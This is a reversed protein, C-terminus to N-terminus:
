QAAGQRALDIRSVKDGPALGERVEIGRKGRLGLELKRRKVGDATKVYAVPGAESPFVSALPIVAVAELRETEVDGRFRMGPRLKLDETSEISLKVSIVKTPITNSKQHLTKAIETLVGTIEQDPQSELRLRVTQGLKLKASDAEDVIGEAMMSDLTAVEVATGLRWLTDGVKTKGNWNDGYIVTGGNEATVTMSAIDKDLQEVQRTALAVQGKLTSLAGQSNARKRKQQARLHEVTEEAAALTLKAKAIALSGTLDASQEAALSAKRVAAEATALGLADDQNSLRVEVQQKELAVQATERQNIRKVRQEELDGSDFVALMDGAKVVEGEPALAAVKFEWVSEVGPPGISISNTASLSGTVEIGVILSDETVTSWEGATPNGCALLPLALSILLVLRKM